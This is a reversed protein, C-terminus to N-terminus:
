GRGRRSARSTAQSGPRGAARRLAARRWARHQIAHQTRKRLSRSTGGIRDVLWDPRNQELERLRQARPPLPAEAEAREARIDAIGFNARAILQGVRAQSDGTLEGIDQHSLGLARLMAIRRLREPLGALISLADDLELWREQPEGPGSPEVATWPEIPAECSRLGVHDWRVRSLAWAQRQAVRFLWGRWNRDRDPQSEMFKAWAFACADEVVEPATDFVVQAVSRMLEDNFDRFLEAEDGRARARVHLQDAM